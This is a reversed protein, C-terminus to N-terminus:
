MNQWQDEGYSSLRPVVINMKCIFFNLILSNLMVLPASCPNLSLGSQNWWMNDKWKYYYKALTKPGQELPVVSVLESLEGVIEHSQYM